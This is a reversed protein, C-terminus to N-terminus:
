SMNTLGDGPLISIHETSSLAIETMEPKSWARRAVPESAELDANDERRDPETPLDGEM